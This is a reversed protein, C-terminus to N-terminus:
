SRRVRHFPVNQQRSITDTSATEMKIHTLIKVFVLMLEFFKTAYCTNIWRNDSHVNLLLSSYKELLVLSLLIDIKDISLIM